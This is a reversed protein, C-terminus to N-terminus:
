EDGATCEGLRAGDGFAQPVAALEELLSAEGADRIQGPQAVPGKGGHVIQWPGPRTM